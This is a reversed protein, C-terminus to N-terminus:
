SYARRLALSYKHFCAREKKEKQLLTYERTNSHELTSKTVHLVSPLASPHKAQYRSHKLRRAMALARLAALPLRCPGDGASCFLVSCITARRTSRLRAGAIIM